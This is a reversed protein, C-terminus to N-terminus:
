RGRAGAGGPRQRRKEARSSRQAPRGDDATPRTRAAHGDDNGPRQRGQRLYARKEQRAAYTALDARYRRAFYYLTLLAVAVIGVLTIWTWLRIGILPLGMVQFVFLVLAVGFAWMFWNSFRLTARRKVDHAKIAAPPRLYLGASILFGVAFFILLGLYVPQTVEDQFPVRTLMDWKFFNDM